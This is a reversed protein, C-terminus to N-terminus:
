KTLLYGFVTSRVDLDGTDDPFMPNWKQEFIKQNKFGFGKAIEFFKMDRDAWKVVHHTFTTFIIGNENIMESCSKLMNRHQNHNFIVDSLLILDFKGDKTLPEDLYQESQGWIFGRVVFTGDQLKEPANEKANLTINQTLQIDPYDTSVVKKAGNLACVISPL